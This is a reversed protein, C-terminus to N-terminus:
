DFEGKDLPGFPVSSTYSGDSAVVRRPKDLWNRFQLQDADGRSWSSAVWDWRPKAHSGRNVEIRYHFPIMVGAYGLNVTRDVIGPPPRGVGRAQGPSLM